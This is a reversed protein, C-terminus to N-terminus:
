AAPKKRNQQVWCYILVGDFFLWVAMVMAANLLKKEHVFRNVLRLEEQFAAKNAPSPDAALANRAATREARRYPSKSTNGSVLTLKATMMLQGSLTLAM